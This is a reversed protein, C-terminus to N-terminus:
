EATSDDEYSATECYSSIEQKEERLPFLSKVPQHDPYCTGQSPRITNIIQNNLDQTEGADREKTEEGYGAYGYHGSIETLGLQGWAKQAPQLLLVGHGPPLHQGPDQVQDLTVELAAADGPGPVILLRGPLRPSVAALEPEGQGAAGQSVVPRPGEQLGAREVDRETLSLVLLGEFM